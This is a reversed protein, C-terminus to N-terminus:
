ERAPFGINGGDMRLFGKMITARTKVANSTQNAAMAGAIDWSRRTGADGASM